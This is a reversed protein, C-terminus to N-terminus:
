PMGGQSPKRAPRASGSTRAPAASPRASTRCPLNRAPSGPQTYYDNTAPDTVFRPDVFDSDTDPGTGARWGTLNTSSFDLRLRNASGDSNWFLNRAGAYRTNGGDTRYLAIWVNADRVVNNWV